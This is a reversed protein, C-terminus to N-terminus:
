EIDYVNTLITSEPSKFSDQRKLPTKLRKIKQESM